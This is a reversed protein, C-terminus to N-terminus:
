KPMMEIHQGKKVKVLAKKFGKKIGKTKGLRVKKSPAHIMRVQEVNVGYLQEVATKVQGKTARPIVEFVYQRFEALASAKETIRPRELVSLSIDSLKRKRPTKPKVVAAPEKKQEVPKEEEKKQKTFPIKFAM